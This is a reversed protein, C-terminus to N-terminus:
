MERLYAITQQRYLELWDFALKTNELVAIGDRSGWNEFARIGGEIVEVDRNVLAALAVTQGFPYISEYSLNSIAKLLLLLINKDHMSQLFIHSVIDGLQGPSEIFWSSLLEDCKSVMGYELTDSRSARKFAQHYENFSLKKSVLLDVDEHSQVYKSGDLGSSSITEIVSGIGPVLGSLFGARALTIRKKNKLSTNNWSSSKFEASLNSLVVSSASLSGFSSVTSDDECIFKAKM